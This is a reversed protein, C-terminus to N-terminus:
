LLKWFMKLFKPTIIKEPKLAKSHAHCCPDVFKRQTKTEVIHISFRLRRAKITGSTEYACVSLDVSSNIRIM